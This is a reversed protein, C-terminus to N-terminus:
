WKVLQLIRALAQDDGFTVSEKIGPEGPLRNRILDPADPDNQDWGSSPQSPPQQQQSQFKMGLPGQATSASSPPTAPIAANAAKAVNRTLTDPSNLNAQGQAVAQQSAATKLAQQGQAQTIATQDTPSLNYFAQNQSIRADRAADEPAAAPHAAAPHAAAPHAAAAPKNGAMQFGAPPQIGARALAQMTQAGILGDTALPKGFQDKNVNQFAIIEARTTPWKGPPTTTPKASTGQQTPQTTQGSAKKADLEQQAYSVHQHKHPTVPQQQTQQNTVPQQQTQQNTVPQTQQNTVPQQATPELQQFFANPDTLVGSNDANKNAAAAAAAAAESQKRTAIRQKAADMSADEYIAMKENLQKVRFLLANETIKRM